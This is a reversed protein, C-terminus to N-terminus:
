SQFKKLLDSVKKFIKQPLAPTQVAGALVITAIQQDQYFAWLVLSQVQDSCLNKIFVQDESRLHELEVLLGQAECSNFLNFINIYNNQSIVVDAFHKCINANGVGGGFEYGQDTRRWLWVPYGFNLLWGVLATKIMAPSKKKHIAKELIKITEVGIFLPHTFRPPQGSFIKNFAPPAHNQTQAVIPEALAEAQVSETVINVVDSVAAPSDPKSEVKLKKRQLLTTVTPMEQVLTSEPKVSAVLSPVMSKPETNVLALSPSKDISEAVELKIEINNQSSDHASM